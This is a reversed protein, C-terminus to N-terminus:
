LNEKLCPYLRDIYNNYTTLLKEKSGYIKLSSTRLGNILFESIARLNCLEVLQKNKFYDAIFDESSEEIVCNNLFTITKNYGRKVNKYCEEIKDQNFDFDNLTEAINLFYTRLKLDGYKQLDQITIVNGVSKSMKEGKYRMLGIVKFFPIDKIRFGTKSYIKDAIIPDSMYCLFLLHNNILQKGTVHVIPYSEKIEEFKQYYYPHLPSDILPDPYKGDIYTGYGVTRDYPYEEQKELAKFLLNKIQSNNDSEAIRNYTRTKWDKDNFLICSRLELELDNTGSCRCVINPTIYYFMLPTLENTSIKNSNLKLDKLKLEFKNILESGEVQLLILEDTLITNKQFEIKIKKCYFNKSNEKIDHEYYENCNCDEKCCYFLSNEVQKKFVKLRKYSIGEYKQREHDGLVTKCKKCTIVPLHKLVTLNLENLSQIMKKVFFSYEQDLDTTCHTKNEQLSTHIKFTNLTKLYQEKIYGYWEKLTIDHKGLPNEEPKLENYKKLKQYVPLGTLHISYYFPIKRNHTISLINAVSQAKLAIAIHGAHLPGNGYPFAQTVYM